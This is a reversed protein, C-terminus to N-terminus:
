LFHASLVPVIREHKEFVFVLTSPWFQGCLKQAQCPHLPFRSAPADRRLLVDPYSSIEQAIPTAATAILSSQAKQEKAVLAAITAIMLARVAAPRIKVPRPNTQWLEEQINNQPAYLLV